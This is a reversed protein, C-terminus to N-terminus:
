MAKGQHSYVARLCVDVIDVLVAFAHGLLIESTSKGPNSIAFNCAVRRVLARLTRESFTRPSEPVV